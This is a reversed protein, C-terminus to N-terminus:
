FHFSTTLLATRGAAQNAFHTSFAKDYYTKDTLNQVNLQLDVNKTLKYTISADVNLTEDSGIFDNILKLRADDKKPKASEITALWNDLLPLRSPGFRDALQQRLAGADLAALTADVDAVKVYALWVPPMGQPVPPANSM